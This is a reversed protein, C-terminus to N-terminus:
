PHKLFRKEGRLFHIVDLGVILLLQFGALGEVCVYQEGDRYLRVNAYFDGSQVRVCRSGVNGQM